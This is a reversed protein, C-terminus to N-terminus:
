TWVQSPVDRHRQLQQHFILFSASGLLATEKKAM